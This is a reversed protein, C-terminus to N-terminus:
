SLTSLDFQLQSNFSGGNSSNDTIYVNKKDKFLVVNDYPEVSAQFIEKDANSSM